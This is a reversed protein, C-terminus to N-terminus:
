LEVLGCLSSNDDDPVLCPLEPYVRPSSPTVLREQRLHLPPLTKTRSRDPFGSSGISKDSSPQIPSLSVPSPKWVLKASPMTQSMPRAEVNRAHLLHEQSVELVDTERNTERNAKHRAALSVRRHASKIKSKLSLISKFSLELTETEDFLDLEEKKLAGYDRFLEDCRTKLDAMAQRLVAISSQLSSTSAEEREQSARLTELNEELSKRTEEKKALVNKTLEQLSQTTRLRREVNSSWTQVECLRRRVSVEQLHLLHLAKKGGLIEGEVKKIVTQLDRETKQQACLKNNKKCLEGELRKCNEKAQSIRPLIAQRQSHLSALSQELEIEQFTLSLTEQGLKQIKNLKEELDNRHTELSAREEDAMATFHDDLTALYKKWDGYSALAPTLFLKSKEM